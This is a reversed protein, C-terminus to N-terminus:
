GEPPVYESPVTRRPPLPPRVELVGRGGDATADFWSYEHDGLSENVEAFDDPPWGINDAIRRRDAPSPQRFTAIYDAQSICLVDIDMPRPGAMIVTMRRHRGHHLLRRLNPPTQGAKSYVGIEDIWVAMRGHRMALGVVRDIDDVVTESGMDPVFVWVNPEGDDEARTPLRVPIADPPIDVFEVGEDVLDRRVDQTIDVVLKDYPYGDWLRRSLHSKGSGKKGSIFFYAGKDPDFPRAQAESV